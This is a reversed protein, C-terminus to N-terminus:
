GGVQPPMLIVSDEPVLDEFRKIVEPVDNPRERAVIYGMKIGESEIGPIERLGMRDAIERPMAKSTRGTLRDFVVKADEVPAELRLDGGNPGTKCMIKLKM